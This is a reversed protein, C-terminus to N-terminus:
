FDTALGKREWDGYRVPDLGGRGGVEDVAGLDGLAARRAEAEQLARVAEPPLAATKRPTKKIARPRTSVHLRSAPTM